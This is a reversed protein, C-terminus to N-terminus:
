VMIGRCPANLQFSESDQFGRWMALRCIMHLYRGYDSPNGPTGKKRREREREGKMGHSVNPSNPSVLARGSHLHININMSM